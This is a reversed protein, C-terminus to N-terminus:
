RDVLCNQLDRYFYRRSVLWRTPLRRRIRPDVAEPVGPPLRREIFSM